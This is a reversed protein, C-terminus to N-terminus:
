YFFCLSDTNYIMLGNAPAAIANMQVTTLRPVLMGQTTSVVDLKASPNPTLTGIGTNQQAHLIASPLHCIAFQLSCVTVSTIILKKM